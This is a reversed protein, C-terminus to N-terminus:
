SAAPMAIAPLGASPVAPLGASSVAPLGADPLAPQRAMPAPRYMQTLEPTVEVPGPWAALSLTVTSSPTSLFNLKLSLILTLTM